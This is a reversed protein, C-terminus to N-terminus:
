AGAKGYMSKGGWTETQRHCDVCLTRGNDIAYRLEPYLAWPKIHDANLTGGIKNCSQCTYDDRVFVATRWLIYEKQGMLRHRETGTFGDWQDISIGRKTASVKKRTDISHTKGYFPNKEGRFDILQKRKDIEEQTMKRRNNPHPKGVQSKHQCSRSCHKAEGNKIQSPYVRFENTCNGCVVLSTTLPKIRVYKRKEM